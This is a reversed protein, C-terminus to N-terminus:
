ERELLRLRALVLVDGLLDPDLGAPAHEVEAAAPARQQVEDAHAAGVPEAHREGLRLVVGAAAVAEVQVDIVRSLEVAVTEPREVGDRAKACELV